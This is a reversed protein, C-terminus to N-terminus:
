PAETSINEAAVWGEAAPADIKYWTEGEYEGVELLIVQAGREQNAIMRVDGPNAVINILYSKGVLYVTDGPQPGQAEGGVEGGPAQLNAAAVWGQGAGGKIEYWIKGELEQSSIVTATEGRGAYSFATMDGPNRYMPVLHSGSIFEVTEGAAFLAEEADEAAPGAAADRAEQARLTAEAPTLIEGAQSCALSGALLLIFVLAFATRARM